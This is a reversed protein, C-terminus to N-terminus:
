VFEVAVLLVSDPLGSARVQARPYALQGVQCCRDTDYGIRTCGGGAASTALAHSCGAHGTGTSNPPVSLHGHRECCSVSDVDLPSGCIPTCTLSVVGALVIGTVLRSSLSPQHRVPHRSMVLM